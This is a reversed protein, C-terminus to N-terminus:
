KSLLQLDAVCARHDSLYIGDDFRNSLVAYTSFFLLDCKNSFLFDIRKSAPNVHRFSTFTSENGYRKEKPVCDRIDQLSSAPATIVQYAEDDPPSNFDGALLIPLPKKSDDSTQHKNVLGLIIKASESRSKVGQDDLHTNMVIIKRKNERHKFVGITVIRISAADWGKSPKEPTESLWVTKWEILDWVSPRYFIPSYEGAQKGNNRGIGIFNWSESPIASENLITQIDLLQSHLVEQLCIFTTSPNASNFVLESCLRPCRISWLEEGKNPTKTAFRINHTLIRIRVPEEHTQTKSFALVDSQSVNLLVGQRPKARDLAPNSAEEHAM